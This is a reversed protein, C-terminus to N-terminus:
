LNQRKRVKVEENIGDPNLSGFPIEPNCNDQAPPCYFYVNYQFLAENGKYKAANLDFYLAGIITENKRGEWFNKGVLFYIETRGNTLQGQSDFLDKGLLIERVHARDNVDVTWSTNNNIQYLFKTEYDDHNKAGTNFEVIIPKKGNALYFITPSNSQLTNDYVTKIDALLAKKDVARDPAVYVFRFTQGTKEVENEDQASALLPSGWLMMILFSSIATLYFHKFSFFRM